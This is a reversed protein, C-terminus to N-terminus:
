NKWNELIVPGLLGSPLLPDSATYFRTVRTVRRADDTQPIEIAANKDSGSAASPAVGEMGWLRKDGIMRNVWVNAVDIELTNAGARVMGSIDKTRFPAKWLIGTSIGNVKVEAIDNVMGLNLTLIKDDGLLDEDVNFDITYRATGSYYRVIQDAEETWSHLETFIKDASQGGKQRFNVKWEGGIETSGSLESTNLSGAGKIRRNSFVVFFADNDKMELPLMAHGCGDMSVTSSVDTCSGDDAKMIYAFRYSNRFHIEPNLQKGSFNGVWYIEKGKASRHAYRIDEESSWFDPSLCALKVAEELSSVVNSRGSHWIDDLLRGFEENSDNLTAPMGPEKGCIIVGADCLEKIRKLIRTSMTGCDRGLMLVSYCMGSETVMKGEKVRIDRVLAHPSAFDYSYGDPIVPLNSFNRGGYQGTANSDEGYYLLIDAVANGKQLLYSSRALYDIWPGAYEAWTENRHFWQGYRFLGLGPLYCDNPQAASEHIVFRNVGAWLAIDATRKLKSPVCTYAMRQSGEVTFSEAAVIPKGYIHAASSSEKIDIIAQPIPSGSPTGEVWIASMPIEANRKVEMGDGCFARGGEHSEIYCGQLGHKRAIRAVNLYNEEYLEGITMRWDWLFRDSEEASGIVEGTLVPLWPLLNYGRRTKFQEAMKPTWTQAGAEYSDILLRQIGIKGMRGDSADRYMELYTDFYREWIESDMKDIELGTAEPSAPHNVKGTLSAGFRYIRWRGEPLRAVLRGSESMNESLDISKQACNGHPTIFNHADWVIRFGGKEQSHEVKHVNSLVASELMEGKVRFMRSKTSDFNETVYQLESPLIDKVLTWDIGDVSSELRCYSKSEQGLNRSGTRGSKVTIARATFTSDFKFVIEGDQNAMAKMEQEEEPLQVAIVAVDYGYPEVQIRDNTQVVDQYPGVVNPLPPLCIDIDGGSCEVSAWELKKMADEPTVWKGGTSSWGPASAITADMGLSDAVDLAYRFMDKWGESLYDYKVEAARPMNVGGADFQHFGSIGIRHMWSLDALIGEKSVNGDMWHWWVYPRAEEPPNQFGDCFSSDSCSALFFVLSIALIGRLKILINSNRLSDRTSARSAPVTVPKM